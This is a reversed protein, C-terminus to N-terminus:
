LLCNSSKGSSGSSRVAIVISPGISIFAFVFVFIFVFSFVFIFRILIITPRARRPDSQGRADFETEIKDVNGNKTAGCRGGGAREPTFTSESCKSRAAARGGM